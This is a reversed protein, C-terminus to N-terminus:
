TTMFIQFIRFNAKLAVYCIKFCHNALPSLKHLTLLKIRNATGTEGPIHKEKGPQQKWYPKITSLSNDETAHKRYAERPFFSSAESNAYQGTHRNQVIRRYKDSIKLKPLREKLSRRAEENELARRNLSWRADEKTGFVTITIPRWTQRPFIAKRWGTAPLDEDGHEWLNKHSLYNDSVQRREKSFHDIHGPCTCYFCVPM